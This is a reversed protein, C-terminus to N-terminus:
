ISPLEPVSFSVKDVATFRAGDTERSFVTGGRRYTKRLNGAEMLVQCWDYVENSALSTAALDETDECPFGGGFQGSIFLHANAFRTKKFFGCRFGCIRLIKLVGRRPFDKNETLLTRCGVQWYVFDYAHAKYPLRPWRVRCGPARFGWLDVQKVPLLRAPGLWTGSPPHLSILRDLPAPM